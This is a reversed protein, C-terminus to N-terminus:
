RLLILKKSVSYEAATLQYLYIGSAVRVGTINLGNWTIEHKGAPQNGNVVSNIFRGKLDYINMSVQCDEPIDYKIVTSPNFPNPYNQYLGFEVPVIEPYTHDLGVNYTKPNPTYVAQDLITGDCLYHILRLTDLGVTMETYGYHSDNSSYGAVMYGNEDTSPVPIDIPAGGNGSVVQVTGNYPDLPPNMVGNLELKKTRVYYHSHGAFIIDCGNQYLPIGWTDHIGDEYTKEGFDFIPHHWIAFLWQKPNTQIADMLMTYQVGTMSSRDSDLVVFRANEYDFTFFKGQNGYLQIQGSLYNNWNALGASTETNDHNGPAALYGPPNQDQGFNGLIGLTQQYFGEWESAIEGHDVVDGVNIIFKYDPTNAMISQLVESHQTRPPNNRTDGYAIFKWSEFGLVINVILTDALFSDSAIIKFSTDATESTPIGFASDATVSLWIPLDEITLSLMPGDPDIATAQYVFYENEVAYVTPASTIVPPDNVATINVAVLLTDNLFGDSAIITFSTDTNGELPIGYVSDVNVVLWTPLGEFVWTLAPGDPDDVMAIYSFYEDEVTNVSAPSVIEPAQNPEPHVIVTVDLSDSLSDAFVIVQFTTDSDGESPTGFLSDANTSLWSPIANYYWSLTMGDPNSATAQYSFYMDWYAHVILPSTIVPPNPGHPGWRLDGINEGDSAAGICPSGPLLALSLNTDTTDEFLPDVFLNTSDLFMPPRNVMWTLSDYWVYFNNYQVTPIASDDDIKLPIDCQVFINNRIVTNAVDNDILIARSENRETTPYWAGSVGDEKYFTCHDIEVFETGKIKIGNQGCKWLSCNNVKVYNNGVADIKFGTEQIEYFDTNTIIATDVASSSKIGQVRFDSFVCDEVKLRSIHGVISLGKATSSGPASTEGQFHLGMIEINASTSILADAQQSSLQPKDVLGPAAMLVLDTSFSVETPAYYNGGNTVFVITDGDILTLGADALLGNLDAQWDNSAYLAYSRNDGPTTPGAQFEMVDVIDIAQALTFVQSFVLVSIIIM